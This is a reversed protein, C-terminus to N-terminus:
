GFSMSCGHGCVHGHQVVGSKCDRVKFDGTFPKVPDEGARVHPPLVGKIHIQKLGVVGGIVREEGEDGVKV